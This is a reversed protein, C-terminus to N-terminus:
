IKIIREVWTQDGKRFQLLYTGKDINAIDITHHREKTLLQHSVCRGVMDNICVVVDEQLADSFELNLVGKTPIPWISVVAKM